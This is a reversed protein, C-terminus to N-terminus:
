ATKPQPIARGAHIGGRPQGRQYGLAPARRSSKPAEHPFQETLPQLIQTLVLFFAPEEARVRGSCAPNFVGKSPPDWTEFALGLAGM